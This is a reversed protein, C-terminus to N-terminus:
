ASAKGTITALTERCAREVWASFSMGELRAAKKGMKEIKKDMTISPKSKTRGTVPRGGKHKVIVQKTSM